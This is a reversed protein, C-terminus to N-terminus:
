QVRAMPLNIRSFKERQGHFSKLPSYYFLTVPHKFEGFLKFNGGERIDKLHLIRNTKEIQEKRKLYEKRKM